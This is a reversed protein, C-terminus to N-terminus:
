PLARPVRRSPIVPYAEMHSGAGPAPLLGEANRGGAAPVASAVVLGSLAGAAIRSAVALGQLGPVQHLAELKDGQLLSVRSSTLVALPAAPLVAGTRASVVVSSWPGHQKRM